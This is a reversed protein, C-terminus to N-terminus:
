HTHIRRVAAAAAATEATESAAAAAAAVALACPPVACPGRRGRKVAQRVNLAQPQPGHRRQDSVIGRADWRAPDCGWASCACWASGLRLAVACLFRGAPFFVHLARRRCSRRQVVCGGGGRRVAVRETTAAGRLLSTVDVDTDSAAAATAAAATAASEAAAM